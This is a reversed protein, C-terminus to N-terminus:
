DLIEKAALGVIGVAVIGGVVKAWTPLDGIGATAFQRDPEKTPQVIPESPNLKTYIDSAKDLFDLTGDLFGGSVQGTSPTIDSM